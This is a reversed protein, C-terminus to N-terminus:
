RAHIHRRYVELADALAQVTDPNALAELSGFEGDPWFNWEVSEAADYIELLLEFDDAFETDNEIAETGAAVSESLAMLPASPVPVLCRSVVCEVAGLFAEKATM